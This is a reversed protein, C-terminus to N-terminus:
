SSTSSPSLDNRLDLQGLQQQPVFTVEAVGVVVDQRRERREDSVSVELQLDLRDHLVRVQLLFDDVSIVVPLGVRRSRASCRRKRLHQRSHLM